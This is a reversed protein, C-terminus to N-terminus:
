PVQIKSQCSYERLHSSFKRFADSAASEFTRSINKASSQAHRLHSRWKRGSLPKAKGQPIHNLRRQFWFEDGSTWYGQIGRGSNAWETPTPWWTVQYTPMKPEEVSYSGVLLAIEEESLSDEWWSHTGTRELCVARGSRISYDSPGEEALVVAREIGICEVALRWLIGGSM